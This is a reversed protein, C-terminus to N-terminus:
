RLLCVQQLIEPSFWQLCDIAHQPYDFVVHLRKGSSVMSFANHLGTLTVQGSGSILVHSAKVGRVCVSWRFM